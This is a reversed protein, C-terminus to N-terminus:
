KKAELKATDDTTKAIDVPKPVHRKGAIVDAQMTPNLHGYHVEIMKVSTGMQKALTYVDMREKLLAFHAYTHRLSYLTRKEKVTKDKDLGSDRMLNRFTGALSKTATGDELLFVKDNIKKKLLADFTYKAITSRRQQIRALYDATNHSAISTRKGTKGNVTLQLYREGNKTVWAIDSWRLGM